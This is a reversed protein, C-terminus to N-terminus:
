VGCVGGTRTGRERAVGDVGVARRSRPSREQDRVGAPARDPRRSVLVRENRPMETWVDSGRGVARVITEVVVAHGLDIFEQPERYQLTLDDGIAGTVVEGSNLGIRVAFDVGRRRRLETSYSRLQDLLRLAAHCARAAHDEQALPAGFLAMAGDGTFKDVMGEFRHIGECLIAFYRDVIRRWEEPGLREALDMSGVVDTFLVTILKREGELARGSALMREALRDPTYSRPERATPRHGSASSAFPDKVAPRPM